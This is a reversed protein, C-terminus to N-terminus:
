RDAPVEIDVALGDHDTLRSGTGDAEAEGFRDLVDPDGDGDVDAPDGEFVAATGEDPVAGRETFVYDIRSDGLTPGADAGADTLGADEFGAVAEGGASDDIEQNFDGTLVSPAWDHQIIQRVRNLQNAQEQDGDVADETPIHTTYVNLTGGGETQLQVGRLRNVNDPHSSIDTNVLNPDSVETVPGGLRVAILTGAPVDDYLAAALGTRATETFVLAV